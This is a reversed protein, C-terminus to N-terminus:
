TGSIPTSTNMYFYASSLIVQYGNTTSSQLM